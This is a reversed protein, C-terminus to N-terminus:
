FCFRGLLRCHALFVRMPTWPILPAEDCVGVYTSSMPISPASVLPAGPLVELRRSQFSIGYPGNLDALLARFRLTVQRLPIRATGEAPPMPLPASVCSGPPRRCGSSAFQWACQRTERLNHVVGVSVNYAWNASLWLVAYLPMVIVFEITLSGAVRRQQNHHARLNM